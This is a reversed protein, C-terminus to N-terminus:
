YNPEWAGLCQEFTKLDEISKPNIYICHGGPVMLCLESANRFNTVCIALKGGEANQYLVKEMPIILNLPAETITMGFELLTEKTIKM